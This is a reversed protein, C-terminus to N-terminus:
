TLKGSPISITQSISLYHLITDPQHNPVHSSCKEMYQSYYEWKVKMNKLPTPIGGVLYLVDLTIKQYIRSHPYPGDPINNPYSQSLFITYIQINHFMKPINSYSIAAIIM